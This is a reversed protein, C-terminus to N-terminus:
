SGFSVLMNNTKSSLYDMKETLIGAFRSKQPKGGFVNHRLFQIRTFDPEFQGPLDPGFQGPLDPGFQGPLDPEFQGPLDPEFQGPLDPEFQGPM